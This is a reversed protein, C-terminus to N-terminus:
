NDSHKRELTTKLTAQMKAIAGSLAQEISDARDSTAFPQRGEVRVELLCRIDNTGEKAGNQDSLHVEVRSIHDSFRDMEEKVLTSFHEDSRNEWPITKDTNFQIMM